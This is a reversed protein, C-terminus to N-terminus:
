AVAGVFDILGPIVYGCDLVVYEDNEHLVPDLEDARIAGMIQYVTEDFSEQDCKDKIDHFASELLSGIDDSDVYDRDIEVVHFNLGDTTTHYQMLAANKTGGLSSYSRKAKSKVGEVLEKNAVKEM